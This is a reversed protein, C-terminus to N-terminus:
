DEVIGASKWKATIEQADRFATTPDIEYNSLLLRALDAPVFEKNKVKKWLLASSANMQIVNNFDINEEGEAIIVSEGCIEHLEFGKKIHMALIILTIQILSELQKDRNQFDKIGTRLASDLGKQLSFPNNESVAAPRVMDQFIIEMEERKDPRTKEKRQPLIGKGDRKYRPTQL